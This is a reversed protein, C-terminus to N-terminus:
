QLTPSSEQETSGDSWDEADDNSPIRYDENAWSGLDISQCRESCFPRYTEEETWAVKKQCQPCSVELNKKM